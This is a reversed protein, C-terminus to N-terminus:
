ISIPKIAFVLPQAVFLALSAKNTFELKFNVPNRNQNTLIDSAVQAAVVKFVIKKKKFVFLITNATIWFKFGTITHFSSM